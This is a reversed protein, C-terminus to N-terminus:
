AIECYHERGHMAYLSPLECCSHVDFGLFNSKLNNVKVKKTMDSQEFSSRDSNVFYAGERRLLITSTREQTNTYFLHSYDIKSFSCLEDFRWTRPLAGILLGSRGWRKVVSLSLTTRSRTQYYNPVMMGCKLRAPLKSWKASKWLVKDHEQAWGCITSKLERSSLNRESPKCHPNLFQFYSIECWGWFQHFLQPRFVDRLRRSRNRMKFELRRHIEIAIISSITSFSCRSTVVVVAIVVVTSWTTNAEDLKHPSGLTGPLPAIILWSNELFFDHDSTPLLLGLPAMKVQRLSFDSFNWGIKEGNGWDSYERRNLRFTNSFSRSETWQGVERPSWKVKGLPCVCHREPSKNSVVNLSLWSDPTAKLPLYFWPRNKYALAMLVDACLCNLLEFCRIEFRKRLNCGRGSTVKQQSTSGCRWCSKQLKNRDHRLILESTKRADSPLTKESLFFGENWLGCASALNRMLIKWTFSVYCCCSRSM